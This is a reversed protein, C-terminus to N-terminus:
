KGSNEMKVIEGEKIKSMGAIVVKYGNELGTLVEMGESRINGVTVNKREIKGLDKKDKIVTYVYKGKRDELIAIPPIIFYKFGAEHRFTFTVESALGSRINKIDEDLIIKVPFTTAKTTAAIGVETVIGRFSKNKISDFTIKVIDGKNILFILSEPVTVKVKPLSDSIVLVIEQGSNINENENPFVDAIRGSIPSYLKTYSLNLKASELKKEMTKVNAKSSESQARAADLDSKSANRNIYLQKVRGYDANANIESAKAQELSAQVEQLQISYAEPDLYAILQGRNVND